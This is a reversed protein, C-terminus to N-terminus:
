PKLKKLNKRIIARELKLLRVLLTTIVESSDPCALLAKKIAVPDEHAHCYDRARKTNSVQPRIRAAESKTLRPDGSPFIKTTMTNTRATAASKM